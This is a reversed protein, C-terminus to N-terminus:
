LNLLPDYTSRVREEYARVMTEAATDDDSILLKKAVDLLATRGGGQPGLGM